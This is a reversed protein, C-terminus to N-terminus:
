GNVGHDTSQTIPQRHRGNGAVVDHALEHTFQALTVADSHCPIGTEIFSLRNREEAHLRHLERDDRDGEQAHHQHGLAIKRLRHDALFCRVRVDDHLHGEERQGGPQARQEDAGDHRELGM